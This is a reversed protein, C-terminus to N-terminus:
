EIKREGEGQVPAKYREMKEGTKSVANELESENRLQPVFTSSQGKDVENNIQVDKEESINQDVGERQMIVMVGFVNGVWMMALLSVAIISFIKEQKM